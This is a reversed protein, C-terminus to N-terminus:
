SRWYTEAAGCEMCQRLYPRRGAGPSDLIGRRYAASRWREATRLPVGYLTAVDRSTFGATAFDAIRTLHEDTLRM